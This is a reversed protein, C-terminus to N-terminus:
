NPYTYRVILWPKSDYMGFADGYIRYSKGEEWVTKSANELYVHVPSEETGINMFARQPKKTDISTVTGKAVYIQSKSKRLEINDVLDTYQTSLDWAKRSYVDINPVWYIEHEVTTSQKGPYDATIVVTNNGITDFRTVFSFSGDIATNTIDLDTHPTLVKVVAGPLTTGRITTNGNASSSSTPVDSALDLPIDQKARYLVVTMTNKRCYQSHVEIDFRNEGIPQVTANYSVRGGGTNVLDSYDNGNITVTSGERVYFVINYLATSVEKYLSDPLDLEIPSIPIDVDYYIVPLARQQGNEQTIYPSLKVTMTDQLYSETDDYWFHDPIDFTAVGNVVISSTRLERITIRAGEEGPISVTHAALDNRITSLVTADSVAEKEAKLMPYLYAFFGGMLLLLVVAISIWPLMRRVFNRQRATRKNDRYRREFDKDERLFEQEATNYYANQTEPRGNVQIHIRRSNEAGPRNIAQLSDAPEYRVTKREPANVDAYFAERNNRTTVIPENRRYRQTKSQQGIRNKLQEGDKKRRSLDVMQNALVDRPDYAEQSYGREDVNIFTQRKEKLSDSWESARGQQEELPTGCKFCHPYGSRNWAGCNPCKM